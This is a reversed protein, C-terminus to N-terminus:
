WGTSRGAGSAVGYRVGSAKRDYKRECHLVPSVPLSGAGWLLQVKVGQNENQWKHGDRSEVTWLRADTGDQVFPLVAGMDAGEVVYLRGESGEAELGEETYISCVFGLNDNPAGAWPALEAITATFRSYGVDAQPSAVDLTPDFANLDGDATADLEIQKDSAAGSARMVDRNKGEDIVTETASFVPIQEQIQRRLSDRQADRNYYVAAVDISDSPEPNPQIVPANYGSTASGQEQWERYTAPTAQTLAMWEGAAAMDAVLRNVGASLVWEPAGIWTTGGDQTSYYRGTIM